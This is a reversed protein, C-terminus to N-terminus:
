NNLKRVDYGVKTFAYLLAGRISTTTEINGIDVGLNVISQAVNPSLGSIISECGMLHTAKTIKILHNAVASDVVAIGSIDLIFCQAQKSYITELSKATLDLARNSDIIGALPLLLVGDWIETIPTAMEWMARGQDIRKQAYNTSTRCTVIATDLHCLKSLALVTESHQAGSKMNKMLFRVMEEYFYNVASLYYEMPLDIKSHVDAVMNRSKLYADDIKGKFFVEWYHRQASKVRSIPEKDPFYEDFYPLQELREYFKDMLKPLEPKILEGAKKVLELAKKDLQYDEIILQQREVGEDKVEQLLEEHETMPAGISSNNSAPKKDGETM